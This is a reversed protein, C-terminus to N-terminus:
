RDEIAMKLQTKYEKLFFIVRYIIYQFIVYSMYVHSHKSVPLKLVRTYLCASFIFIYM